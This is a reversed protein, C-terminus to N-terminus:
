LANQFALISIFIFYHIANFVNIIKLALALKAIKIVIKALTLHRMLTFNPPLVLRCVNIKCYFDVQLAHLVNMLDIALVPFVHKIV